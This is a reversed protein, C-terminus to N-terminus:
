GFLSLQEEQPDGKKMNCGELNGNWSEDIAIAGLEILKKNGLSKQNNRCFVQCYGNRLAETM